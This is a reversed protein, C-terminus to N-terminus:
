DRAGLDVVSERVKKWAAPPLTMTLWYSGEHDKGMIVVMLRTTRIQKMTAVHHFTPTGPPNRRTQRKDGARIVAARFNITRLLNAKSWDTFPMLLADDDCFLLKSPDKSQFQEHMSALVQTETAQFALQQRNSSAIAGLPRSTDEVSLYTYAPLIMNQIYVGSANKLSPLRFRANMAHLATMPRPRPMSDSVARMAWATLIDGDSMFPPKEGSTSTTIDMKAQLRMTAITKEPLCITQTEPTPGRLMDWAFRTIFRILSSGKIQKSKLAYNDPGGVPADLAVQLVDKQVGLVLPVESERGELVMSWADLFAKQGMIDMLTHPWLISVITANTFSIVHLSVQPTDGALLDMPTKPSGDRAALDIFTYPSPWISVGGNSRPFNKTREYDEMAMDVHEHSYSFAPRDPTFKQPAHIELTGNKLRLRGGIKRWDGIELLRALSSRLKEADLVDNFSLTWALLLSRLTNTDDLKYLPYIVDDNYSALGRSRSKRPVCGKFLAM